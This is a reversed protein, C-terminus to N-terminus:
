GCSPVGDPGCGPEGGIVIGHGCATTAPDPFTGAQGTVTIATHLHALPGGGTTCEPGVGVCGAGVQDLCLRTGAPLTGTQNDLIVARGTTVPPGVRGPHPPALYPFTLPLAVDNRNVGDGIRPAGPGAVLRLAIDLVDDQVRRGNPFGALDGGLVGLRNQSGFPTPAVGLDLRLLDACPNTKTCEGPAQGPYKLLTAVLDTRGTQPFTTGVRSSLVGALDPNLFFVDFVGDMVPDLGNFRDKQPLPVILENVLPNGLRSVQVYAGGLKQLDDRDDKLKIKPAGKRTTRQTRSASAWVGIVADPDLVLASRPVQVAIAHVNRGALADQGFPDVTADADEGATLIPPTRAFSLTDFMGGLDIYFPDDRPGVFVRGGNALPVVAQAALADYDPIATTGVDPPAVFGTVTAALKLKKGSRALESMTYRQRIGLGESGPGDLATIPPAGTLGAPFAFTGTGRLDTTFEFRFVRDARADRDVDIHIEYRTSDGFAYFTPGSAPEEFPIYTAVITVTDAADPSRFVYLDTNDAAPDQSILPAERHSAALARGLVVGFSLQVLLPVLALLSHRRRDM